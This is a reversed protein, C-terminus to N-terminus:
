WNSRQRFIVRDQVPRVHGIIKCRILRWCFLPTLNWSKLIVFFTTGTIAVWFTWWSIHLAFFAMPFLSSADIFFFKPSLVTDRWM